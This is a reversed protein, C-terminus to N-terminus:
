GPNSRPRIPSPADNRGRALGRLCGAAKSLDKVALAAPVLLAVLVPRPRRRARALPLSLYLAAGALALLRGPRRGRVLLFPGASYALLRALNRGVLIPDRAEGDGFGYRYYMAATGAVSPRQEWVVEADLQLTCRRGAAALARGFEVDDATGLQPSFGGVERWAPRWFAMSRGTPLSAAYVRGLLWGYARAWGSMRRAEEPDPYNAAALAHEFPRSAQVRYIGTVLDPRPIDAFARRLGDLWGPDPRCGADTCAIVERRAEEV